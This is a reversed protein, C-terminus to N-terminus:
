VLVKKAWLPDKKFEKKKWFLGGVQWFVYKKFFVAWFRLSIILFFYMKQCAPPRKQIKKIKWFLGGIPWFLTPRPIVNLSKFNKKLFFLKKAWPPDKKFFWLFEFISGRCALFHTKEWNKGGFRLFLPWKYITQFITLFLQFIPSKPSNKKKKKKWFLGGVQWFVYKKFFIAWFRLFTTTM